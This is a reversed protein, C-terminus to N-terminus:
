LFKNADVALGAAKMEKALEFKWAGKEDMPVYVVGSIDGPTEVGDKVLACVHSRGLKGVLYGHEFVVNQRARGQEDDVSEGKARGLDCPTYLVVAFAVDTNAEIKEMITKGGSPQEHLIIAQFDAKELTRAVEQKAANDHGHVVFVRNGVPRPMEGKGGTPESSASALFFETDANIAELYGMMDNHASYSKKRTEFTHMIPGFLPHDKLYRQAFTCIENMWVDSKPGDVFSFPFGGEAPHYEEQGIKKGREIFEQVKERPGVPVRPFTKLWMELKCAIAILEPRYDFESGVVATKSYTTPIGDSFNPEIVRYSALLENFLCESGPIETQARCRAIDAEIMKCLEDTLQIM